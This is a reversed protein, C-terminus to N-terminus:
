KDNNGRLLLPLNLFGVRGNRKTRNLVNQKQLGKPPMIEIRAPTPTAFM